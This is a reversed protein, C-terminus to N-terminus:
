ASTRNGASATGLPVSAIWSKGPEAARVPGVAGAISLTSIILAGVMATAAQAIRDTNLM